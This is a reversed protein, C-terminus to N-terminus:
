WCSLWFQSDEGHGKYQDFSRTWGVLEDRYLLVGRPNSALVRALAEVTADNCLVREMEPRDPRENKPIAKWEEMEVYWEASFREQIECLPAVTASLPPSKATGPHGICGGYLIPRELWSPKLRIARSNGIAAGAVILMPVGVFDIPCTMSQSIQYVFERLDIPLVNVPFPMVEPEDFNDLDPWADLDIPMNPNLASRFVSKFEEPSKKHLDNADKAGNLSVEFVKGKFDLLRLRNLMSTVFVDGAKDPERLVYMSEIGELHAAELTKAMTAGPIGLAPFDNKWLTWVDSEGEVCVLYGAKRADELHDLGYPVISGDSKTGMWASGDKAKLATRMRSRPALKGDMMYYPIEVHGNQQQVGFQKLFEASLGKDAALEEVTLRDVVRCSGSFLDAMTLDISSVIDEPECGAHCHILIRGDNGVSISLSPNEDSHAPCRAVWGDATERVLDLRSLLETADGSKSGDPKPLFKSRKM